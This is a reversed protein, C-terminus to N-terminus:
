KRPNFYIDFASCILYDDADGMHGWKEFTEGTNSDKTREKVKGGDPAEKVFEFDTILKKCEPDVIRRIPFGEAFIKNTFDRRKILPPNRKTVRNSSSHLLPKLVKEIVEYNHKFEKSVTQRNKGSSDGYIFCGGKHNQYDLLIRNSLDESNNHPAELAYEKQTEIYYIGEDLYIQSVTASIYPVVNFDFSIHIPLDEDYQTEKIHKM